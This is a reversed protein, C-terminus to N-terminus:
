CPIQVSKQLKCSRITAQESTKITTLMIKNNAKMTRINNTDSEKNLRNETKNKKRKRERRRSNTDKFKKENEYLSFNTDKAIM